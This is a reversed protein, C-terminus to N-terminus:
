LEELGHRQRFQEVIDQFARYGGERTDLIAEFEAVWDRSPEYQPEGPLGAGAFAEGDIDLFEQFKAAHQDLGTTKMAAHAELLEDEAYQTVFFWFGEQHIADLANWAAEYAGQLDTM